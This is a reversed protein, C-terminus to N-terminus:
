VKSIIDLEGSACDGANRSYRTDWKLTPIMQESSHRCADMFRDHIARMVKEVDDPCKNVIFHSWSVDKEGRSVVYEESLFACMVKELINMCRSKGGIDGIMKLDVLNFEGGTLDAREIMMHLPNVLDKERDFHPAFPLILSITNGSSIDLEGDLADALRRLVLGRHAEHYSLFDRLNERAARSSSSTRPRLYIKLSSETGGHYCMKEKVSSSCEIFPAEGLWTNYADISTNIFDKLRGRGTFVTIDPIGIKAGKIKGSSELQAFVPKIEHKVKVLTRCVNMEESEIMFIKQLEDLNAILKEVNRWGIDLLKEKEENELAQDSLIKVANRIATLPTRMRHSLSTAFRSKLEDLKKWRSFDHILIYFIMKGADAELWRAELGLLKHTQKDPLTVDLYTIASDNQRCKEFMSEPCHRSIVDAAKEVDSASLIDLASKNSFIPELKNGLIVIGQEVPQLINELLNSQIIGEAVKNYRDTKPSKSNKTKKVEARRVVM